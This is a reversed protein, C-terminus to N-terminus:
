ATKFLRIYAKVSLDLWLDRSFYIVIIRNSTYREEEIRINNEGLV